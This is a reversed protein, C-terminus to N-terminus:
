QGTDGVTFLRENRETSHALGAEIAEEFTSPLNPMAGPFATTVRKRGYKGSLRDVEQKTTFKRRTQLHEQRRLRDRVSDLQNQVYKQRNVRTDYPMNEDSAITEALKTLRKEDAQLEEIKQEEEESPVIKVIKVPNGGAFFQHDSVLLLVEAPTVYKLEVDNGNKEQKLRIIALDM